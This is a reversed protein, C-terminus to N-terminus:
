MIGALGQKLNWKEPQNGMIALLNLDSFKLSRRCPVSVISVISVNGFVRYSDKVQLAEDAKGATQAGLTANRLLDLRNYRIIGHNPYRFLRFLLSAEERILSCPADISHALQASPTVLPDGLMVPNPTLQM